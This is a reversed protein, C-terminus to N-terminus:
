VRKLRVNWYVCYPNEEKSSTKSLMDSVIITLSVLPPEKIVRFFLEDLSISCSFIGCPLATHKSSAHLDGLCQPCAATNRTSAATNETATITGTGKQNLSSRRHPAASTTILLQRLILSSLQLNKVLQWQNKTAASLFSRGELYSSELGIYLVLFALRQLCCTVFTSPDRSHGAGCTM